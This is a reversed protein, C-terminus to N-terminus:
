ILRILSRRDICALVGVCARRGGRAVAPDAAVAAGSSPWDVRIVAASAGHVRRGLIAGSVREAGASPCPSQLPTPAASRGAM